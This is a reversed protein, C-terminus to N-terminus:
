ECTVKKSDAPKAAQDTKGSPVVSLVVRGKTLYKNAVRKVDAATVALTKQYDKKFYGPDGHIARATRRAAQGQGPQVPHRQRVGARESATAKQLEEATPGEAKLQEVIADAASMSTPSRTVPGRADVIM